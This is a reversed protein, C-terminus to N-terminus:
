SSGEARQIKQNTYFQTQPLLRVSADVPSAHMISSAPKPGMLAEPLILDALRDLLRSQSANIDYGIKEFEASCADIMLLILPDFNSEIENEAVGWLRATTKLMRDKIREKKVVQM